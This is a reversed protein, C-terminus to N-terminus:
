EFIKTNFFEEIKDREPKRLFVEGNLRRCYQWPTWNMYDMLRSRTNGYEGHPLAAM